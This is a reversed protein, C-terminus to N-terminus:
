PAREDAEEPDEDQRDGHDHDEALEADVDPRRDRAEPDDADGDAEAGLAEDLVEEVADEDEDLVLERLAVDDPDGAHAARDLVEREPPGGQAVAVADDM